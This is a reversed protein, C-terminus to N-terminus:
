FVGKCWACFYVDKLYIYFCEKAESFYFAIQLKYSHNFIKKNKNKPRKLAASMAYPPEWALPRFLAVAAPRHWLWRLALDSGHRPGIGYSM